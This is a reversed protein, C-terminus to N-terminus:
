RVSQPRDVNRVRLLSAYIELHQELVKDQSFNERAFDAAKSALQQSFRRNELVSKLAAALASADRVPVLIGCQGHDVADRCGPADSTVIARGMAAAELLARSMGERYSPLCVITAQRYVAEMDTRHGWWEVHGAGVWADVEDRTVAAPNGDDLGGVLVFRTSVHTPKLRKAAEVFELVGKDRLLRAPLVVVPAGDPLPSPSFVKLDVGSGRIKVVKADGLAHLRRLEAEDDDNQLIVRSNPTTLAVRYAAAIGALRAKARLGESLFLYGLGSVANVVGAVGTLRAAASGYLVPKITVQHVVDPRLRRYHGVLAAVTKAELLPHQGKRDLSWEHFPVGLEDLWAVSPGRPGVVHVDYGAARAGTVLVARHSRLFDVNNVTFVLRPMVPLAEHYV